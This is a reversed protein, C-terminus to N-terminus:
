KGLITIVSPHVDFGVYFALSAKQQSDIIEAAAKLKETFNWQNIKREFYMSRVECLVETESEATKFADNSLLLEAQDGDGLARQFLVGDIDIDRLSIDRLHISWEDGTPTLRLINQYVAVSDIVDGSAQIELLYYNGNNEAYVSHMISGASLVHEGVAEIIFYGEPRVFSPHLEIHAVDVLNIKINSGLGLKIGPASTDKPKKSFM